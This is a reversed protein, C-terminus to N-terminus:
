SSFLEKDIEAIIGFKEPIMSQYSAYKELKLLCSFVVNDVEFFVGNRSVKVTIDPVNSLIGKLINVSKRTLIINVEVETPHNITFVAFSPPNASVFTLKKNVTHIFLGEYTTYIEDAPMTYATFNIAKFLLEGDVNFTTKVEEIKLKPFTTDQELVLTQQGSLYKIELSTKNIVLDIPQNPLAKII